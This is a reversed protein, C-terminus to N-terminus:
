ESSGFEPYALLWGSAHGPMDFEPVIRIGRDSAYQILEGMESQTYHHGGSGLEHLKPHKKSEMQFGQNDSLHLHLINMKVVAMADINEYLKDMPIFHRSVDIM